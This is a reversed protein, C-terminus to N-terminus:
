PEISPLPQAMRGFVIRDGDRELDIGIVGAGTALQIRALQLPGALVFATGLVPHGAFPLEQAPTFIRIRAQASGEGPYVFVTESFNIERAIKPLLPEPIARADTFVCLQNGELPREAFVDCMVFRFSPM